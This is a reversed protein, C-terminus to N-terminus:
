KRQIAGWPGVRAIMDDSVRRRSVRPMDLPEDFGFLAERAGAKDVQYERELFDAVFSKKTESWRGYLAYFLEKHCIFLQRIDKPALEALLMNVLDAQDTETARLTYFYAPHDSTVKPWKGNNDAWDVMQRLAHYEPPLADAHNRALRRIDSRTADTLDVGAEQAADVVIFDMKQRLIASGDVSRAKVIPEALDNYDLFKAIQNRDSFDFTYKIALKGLDTKDGATIVAPHAVGRFLYVGGFYSTWYDQQDFAMHKLTVPNRTVDGTRKALTIMDAILVDDFWGDEDQKFRDALAGLKEADRLTGETTDAEISVKRIDFLRSPESVSFVSNVLEGAVADRATLAFLQPENEEIFHRLIERSTSFKINLLPASKQDTTLLIFQRNCGGHNLYLHDDLEDGVEPSYGSIDIHFDTLNTTKGTLHKLARNYREVLVPSAVEILNGFMLGRQILRHM